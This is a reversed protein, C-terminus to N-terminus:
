PLIRDLLRAGIIAQAAPSLAAPEAIAGVMQAQLRVSAQQKDLSAQMAARIRDAQSLVPSIAAMPAPPPKLPAQQLAAFILWMM